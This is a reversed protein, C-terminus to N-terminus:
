GVLSSTIVRNEDLVVRIRTKIYQCNDISDIDMLTLGADQCIIEAEYFKKGEIQEAIEDVSFSKM